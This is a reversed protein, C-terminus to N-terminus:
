IVPPRGEIIREGRVQKYSIKDASYGDWQWYTNTYPDHFYVPFDYPTSVLNITSVDFAGNAEVGTITAVYTSRPWLANWSYYDPLYLMQGLTTFATYHGNAVTTSLVTFQMVTPYASAPQVVPAATPAATAVPENVPVVKLEETNQKCFRDAIGIAAVGIIAMLGVVAFICFIAKKITDTEIIIQSM